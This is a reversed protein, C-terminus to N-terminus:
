AAGGATKADLERKRRAIDVGQAVHCDLVGYYKCPRMGDILAPCELCSINTDCGWYTDYAKRKDEDIREKTDLPTHTINKAYDWSRTGDKCDDEYLVAPTKSWGGNDHGYPELKKVTNESGYINWVTEGVKVPKGDAGLVKPEPRKVRKSCPMWTNHIVRWGGDYLRYNWSGSKCFSIVWAIHEDDEDRVKDDSVVKEGDEFKPWECGPPMLRKDLESVILQYGVAGASDDLGLMRCVDHKILANEAYRNEVISLGGNAEVWDAATDHKTRCPRCRIVMNSDAGSKPADAVAKRIYNAYVALLSTYYSAIGDPDADFVTFNADKEIKAALELLASVDVDQKTGHEILEILLNRVCDLDDQYCRIYDCDAGIAKEIAKWNERYGDGSRAKANTKYQDIARLREVVERSEDTMDRKHEVEHLLLGHAERMENLEAQHEREIQDAVEHLYGRGASIAITEKVVNDDADVTAGVIFEQINRLKEIGSAGNTM